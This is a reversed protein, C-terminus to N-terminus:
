EFRIVVIEPVSGTRVTPGWIGVGSSTYLTYDGKRHLGHHYKGYVLRTLLIIPLLQGKHTHGSLQVNVGKAHMEEAHEPEHYLLISPTHPTFGIRDLIDAVNRKLSRKSYSIGVVQVGEIDVIEDELIRLPAEKLIERVRALGLYVEHNGTIFYTGWPPAYDRLPKLHNHFNGDTGDFIDGTIFIIDPALARVKRMVRTLFKERLILGLHLDSLQVATKGRWAAPLNRIRVRVEVIRPALVNWAGYLTYFLAAIGTVLLSSPMPLTAGFLPAAWYAWWVIIWVLTLHTVLGLWFGSIYYVVRTFLTDWYHALITSIIFSSPLAVLVARAVYEGVDGLAFFRTMTYYLFAHSGGIAVVIAGIIIIFFAFAGM